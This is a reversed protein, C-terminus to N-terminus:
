TKPNQIQNLNQVLHQNLLLITASLIGKVIVGTTMDLTTIISLITIGQERFLTQVKNGLTMDKNLM